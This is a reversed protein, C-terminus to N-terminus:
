TDTTEGKRPLSFAVRQGPMESLLALAQAPSTLGPELGFAVGVWSVHWRKLCGTALGGQEARHCPLCAKVLCPQLRPRPDAGLNTTIHQNHSNRVYFTCLIFCHVGQWIFQINHIHCFGETSVALRLVERATCHNLIQRGTCPM